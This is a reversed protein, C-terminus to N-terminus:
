PLLIRVEITLKDYRGDLAHLLADNSAGLVKNRVGNRVGHKCM